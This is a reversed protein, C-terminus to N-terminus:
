RALHFTPTGVPKCEFGGKWILSGFRLSLDRRYFTLLEHRERFDM